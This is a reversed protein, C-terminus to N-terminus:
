HAEVFERFGPRLQELSADLELGLAMGKTELQAVAKAVVVAPDIRQKPGIPGVLHLRIALRNDDVTILGGTGQIKGAGEKLLGHELVDHAPGIRAVVLCVETLLDGARVVGLADQPYCFAVKRLDGLHGVLGEVGLTRGALAKVNKSRPAVGDKGMCGVLLSRPLKQP